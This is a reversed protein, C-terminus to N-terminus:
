SLEAWRETLSFRFVRAFQMLSVPHVGSDLLVDLRRDVIAKAEEASLGFEAVLGDADCLRAREASDPDLTVARMFETVDPVSITM